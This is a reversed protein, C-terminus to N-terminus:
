REKGTRERLRRRGSGFGLVLSGEFGRPPHRQVREKRREGFGAAVIRRALDHGLNPSRPRQRAPGLDIGQHHLGTDGHGLAMDAEGARQEVLHDLEGGIEGLTPILAGRQAPHHAVM